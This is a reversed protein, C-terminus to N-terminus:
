SFSITRYHERMSQLIFNREDICELFFQTDEDIIGNSLSFLISNIKLGPFRKYFSTCLLALQEFNEKGIAQFIIDINANRRSRLIEEKFEQFFDQVLFFLNDYSTEYQYSFSDKSSFIFLNNKEMLSCIEQSILENIAENLLEYDRTDSISDENDSNVGIKGGVYDWGGIMKYEDSQISLLSTELLHNLEHILLHDLNQFSSKIELFLLPFVDVGHTTNILNTACCGGGCKYLDESFGDDKDLLALADIKKRIEQNKSLKRFYEKLYAHLYKERTEIFREVFDPSPWIKQIEPHNIYEDYNNEFDFGFMKFYCIRDYKIDIRNANEKLLAESKKSFSTLVSISTSNPFSVFLQHISSPLSSFNCKGALFDQFKTQCSLPEMDRFQLCFKRMFKNSLDKQIEEAEEIYQRHGVLKKDFDQFNKLASAFREVSNVLIDFDHNQLKAEFNHINVSSDVKKMLPEAQTYLKLYEKECHSKDFYYLFKEKLFDSCRSEVEMSLKGDCVMDYFAEYSISPFYRHFLQYGRELFSVYRMDEGMQYAEYFTKYVAIPFLSSNHFTYSRFLDDKSLISQDQVVYEFLEQSKEKAIQNLLSELNDPTQYPIFLSHFFKEEIFSRLDEGYYLCFIDILKSINNQLVEEPSLLKMYQEVMFEEM